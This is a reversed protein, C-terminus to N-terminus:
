VHRHFPNRFRNFRLSQRYHILWRVLSFLPAYDQRFQERDRRYTLVEALIGLGIVLAAFGVFSPSQM